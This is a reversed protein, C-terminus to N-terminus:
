LGPEPRILFKNTMNVPITERSKILFLPGASPKILYIILGIYERILIIKFKLSTKM